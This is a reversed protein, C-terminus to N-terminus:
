TVGQKPGHTALSAVVHHGRCVESAHTGRVRVMQGEQQEEFGRALM